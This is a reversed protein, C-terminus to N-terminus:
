TRSIITLILIQGLQTTSLLDKEVSIHEHSNGLRMGMLTDLKMNLNRPVQFQTKHYAHSYKSEVCSWWAEGPVKTSFTM